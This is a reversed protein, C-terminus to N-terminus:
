FLSKITCASFRDHNGSFLYFGRKNLRNHSSAHSGFSLIVM